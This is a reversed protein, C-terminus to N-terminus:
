KKNIMFGQYVVILKDLERSIKLTEENTMKRESVPNELQRRMANIEFELIQLRKGSMKDGQIIFMYYFNM